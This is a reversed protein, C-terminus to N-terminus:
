IYTLHKGSLVAEHWFSRRGRSCWTMIVVSHLNLPRTFSTLSWCQWKEGSTSSSPTWVPVCARLVCRSHAVPGNACGEALPWADWEPWFFVACVCPCWETNLSILVSVYVYLCLCCSHAWIVIILFSILEDYGTLCCISVNNGCNIWWDHCFPNHCPVKLNTIIWYFHIILFWIERDM